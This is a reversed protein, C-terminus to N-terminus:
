CLLLKFCTALHVQTESPMCMGFTIDFLALTEVEVREQLRMRWRTRFRRSVAVFKSHAAVLSLAPFPPAGSIHAHACPQLQKAMYKVAFGTKTQLFYAVPCNLRHCCSHLCSMSYCGAQQGEVATHQCSLAQGFTGNCLPAHLHSCKVSHGQRRCM